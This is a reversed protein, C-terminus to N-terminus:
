VKRRLIKRYVINKVDDNLAFAWMITMTSIVSLSCVVLFRGLGPTISCHVLYPIVCAVLILIFNKAVIQIFFRASPFNIYKEVIWM